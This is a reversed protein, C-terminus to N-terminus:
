PGFFHPFPQVFILLLLVLLIGGVLGFAGSPCIRGFRQKWISTCDIPTLLAANGPGFGQVYYRRFADIETDPEKKDGVSTRRPKGKFIDSLLNFAVQVVESRSGIDNVQQEYFSLLRNAANEDSIPMGSSSSRQLIQKRHGACKASAWVAGIKERITQLRSRTNYNLLNSATQWIEENVDSSFMLRKPIDFLLAFIGIGIVLFQVIISGYPSTGQLVLDYSPDTDSEMAAYEPLVVPITKENGIRFLRPYGSASLAEELTETDNTLLCSVAFYLSSQYSDRFVATLAQGNRSPASWSNWLPYAAAVTLNRTYRLFHPHWFLADMDTTFYTCNPIGENLFELLALKDYVDSGFIVIADPRKSGGLFPLQAGMIPQTLRRIYDFQSPGEAAEILGLGTQQMGKENQGGKQSEDQDYKKRYLTAVGDPGQMYPIFEVDLEKKHLKAIAEKFSDFLTRGYFTDWEVFVTVKIKPKLFKGSNLKPFPGQSSIARVLHCCLDDDFPPVRYILGESSELVQVKQPKQDSLGNKKENPAVKSLAVTARTSLIICGDNQAGQMSQVEAPTARHPEMSLLDDSNLPGLFATEESAQSNDTKILEARVTKAIDNRHHWQTMEEPIWVVIVSRFQSTSEIRNENAGNKRFYEFALTWEFPKGKTSMREGSPM